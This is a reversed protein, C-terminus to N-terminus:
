SNRNDVLNIYDLALKNMAHDGYSNYRGEFLAFMMPYSQKITLAEKNIKEVIKTDIPAVVNENICKHSFLSLIEFEKKQEKSFGHHDTNENIDWADFYVSMPHSDPLQQRIYEGWYAITPLANRRLQKEEKINLISKFQAIAAKYKAL